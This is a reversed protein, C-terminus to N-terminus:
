ASTKAATGPSSSSSTGIHASTAPRSCRGIFHLVVATVAVIAGVIWPYIFHHDTQPAERPLAGLASLLADTVPDYVTREIFVAHFIELEIVANAIGVAALTITSRSALLWAAAIRVMPDLVVLFRLNKTPALAMAAFGIIVFAALARAERERAYGLVVVAIAGAALLSVFPAAVFFDFLLRHPPGSQYQVAYSAHMAGDLIRAIRFAATVSRSLAAFIAFSLLPPLVITLVNVKKRLLMWAIVAPYIYVFSEKVGFALTLAAIAPAVFRRDDISVDVLLMALMVVACFVEDQLARRGLALELPSVAVFATALLAVRSGFRRFAFGFVLPVVAIGAITSLWALAAPDSRGHAIAAIEALALYSWRIPSPYPWRRADGVFADVIKPFGAVYGDTVLTETYSAYVAEDAPSFNCVDNWWLRLAAAAFVIAIVMAIEATTLDRLRRM